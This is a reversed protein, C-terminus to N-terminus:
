DRPSPSTYLLCTSRRLEGRLTPSSGIDEEALDGVLPQEPSFFDEERLPSGPEEGADEPGQPTEPRSDLDLTIVEIEGEETDPVVTGAVGALKAQRTPTVGVFFNTIATLPITAVLESVASAAM